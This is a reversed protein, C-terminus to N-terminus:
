AKEFFIHKLTSGEAEEQDELVLYLQRAELDNFFHIAVKCIKTRLDDNKISAVGAEIGADGDIKIRVAEAPIYEPDLLISVAPSTFTQSPKIFGPTELTSAEECGNNEIENISCFTSLPSYWSPAAKFGHNYYVPQYKSPNSPVISATFIGNFRERISGTDMLEQFLTYRTESTRSKDKPNFTEPRPINETWEGTIARISSLREEQSFLITLTHLM